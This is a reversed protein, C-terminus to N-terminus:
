REEEACKVGEKKTAFKAFFRKIHKKLTKIM